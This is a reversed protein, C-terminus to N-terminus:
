WRLTLKHKRQRRVVEVRTQREGGERRVRRQEAQIARRLDALDVIASDGVATIVDGGRLGTNAAPTNPHVSIVFVGRRVGTLAALDDNLPTVHAGAVGGSSGTATLAIPPVVTQRRLERQARQVELLAERREAASMNRAEELERRAEAQAREVERRVEEAIHEDPPMMYSYTYAPRPNRAVILNVDRRTGNRKVRVHFRAGPRLMDYLPLRHRVDRHNFQLITDGAVLGAQAAPSGADVTVIPPYQPFSIVVQGHRREVRPEGSFTIGLYGDPKRVQVTTVPAVPPVPPVPPPTAQGRAGAPALFVVATAVSVIVCTMRRAASGKSQLLM